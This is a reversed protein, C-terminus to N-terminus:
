NMKEDVLGAFHGAVWGQVGRVEETGSASGAAGVPQGPGPNVLQGGPEVDGECLARYAGQWRPSYRTLCVDM